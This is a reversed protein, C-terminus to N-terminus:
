SVTKQLLSLVCCGTGDHMVNAVSYTGAFPGDEILLTAGEPHDIVQDSRTIFTPSSGGRYDFGGLTGHEFGASPYGKLPHGGLGMRVPPVFLRATVSDLGDDFFIQLDDYLAQNV